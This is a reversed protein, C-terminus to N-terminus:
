RVMTYFIIRIVAVLVLDVCFVCPRYEYMGKHYYCSLDKCTGDNKSLSGGPLAYLYEGVVFLCWLMFGNANWWAFTALWNGAVYDAYMYQLALVCGMDRLM